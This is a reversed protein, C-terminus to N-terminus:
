GPPVGRYRVEIIGEVVFFPDLRLEPVELSTFSKPETFSVSVQGGVPYATTTQDDKPSHVQHSPM